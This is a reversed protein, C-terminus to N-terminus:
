NVIQKFAPVACDKARVVLLVADVHERREAQESPLQSLAGQKIALADTPFYLVVELFTLSEM